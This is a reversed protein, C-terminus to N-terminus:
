DLNGFFFLTIKVHTNNVTPSVQSQVFLVGSESGIISCIRICEATRTCFDMLPKM